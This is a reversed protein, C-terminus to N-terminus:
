MTLDKTWISYSLFLKRNEYYLNNKKKISIVIM